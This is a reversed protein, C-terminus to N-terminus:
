ASAGQTKDNVLPTENLTVSQAVQQQGSFGRFLRDWWVGIGELLNPAALDECAVLDMTAIVNNRQKFTITGVKDGAHVDGTLEDFSLSQSVNGNLDFVEVSAQPDALTAKVTADVWGAHAVEAVVPVQMAQGGITASATEPSHALPYDIVHEFVWDYLTTADEFRQAESTSNIVIAFLTRGDRTCAGAFSPGARDTLGTKIGCAGEYVGILEDTSELEVLRTAGDAGTVEITAAAQAVAARFTEDQMACRAMLAVDAACSHLDGAFEGYDLGHPNTFVTDVCGLEAAKANMAAVFAEYGDEQASMLAGVSEAIAIAADNGSPVLLASLAAELTLADGEQLGASSQGVTAAAASVRVPTDLPANELAVIATMIKTISAIETPEQANREFYVTGADDTVIAYEAEIDPCQAAALGRSDVSQGMVVDAKRVDAHAPTQGFPAAAGAFALACALLLAAACGRAARRIGCAADAQAPERFSGAGGGTHRATWNMSRKPPWWSSVRM